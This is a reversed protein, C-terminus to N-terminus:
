VRLQGSTRLARLDWAIRIVSPAFGRIFSSSFGVAMGDARRGPIRRTEATTAASAAADAIAAHPDDLELLLVDLEAADADPEVEPEDLEPPPDAACAASCGYRDVGVFIFTVVGSFDAGGAPLVTTKIPVFLGDL